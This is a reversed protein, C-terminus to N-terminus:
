IDDKEKNFRRIQKEFIEDITKQLTNDDQSEEVKKIVWFDSALKPNTLYSYPMYFYGHDGWDPGWQNRCIFYRTYDDYGVCVVAHGGLLSETYKPTPVKGTKAVADSMFSSYVSFGFGFPFGEALCAKLNNLNSNLIRFYLIAQHNLAQKYAEEPPRIIFKRIDYPWKDLRCAGQKSVSKIGDRIYAGSDSNVSNEMVRENYYIFLQSPIFEEVSYNNPNDSEADQKINNYTLLSGISFATCSGLVGQNLIPNKSDYKQRLDVTSPYVNLRQIEFADKESNTLRFPVYILDRQDPLDKIWGMGRPEYDIGEIKNDHIRKNLHYAYTNSLTTGERLDIFDITNKNNKNNNNM